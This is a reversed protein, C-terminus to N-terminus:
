NWVLVHILFLGGFIGGLTYSFRKADWGCGFSFFSFGNPLVFFFEIAKSRASMILVIDHKYDKILIKLALQKKAGRVGRANFSWVIM